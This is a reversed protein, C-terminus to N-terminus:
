AAALKVKAGLWTAVGHQNAEEAFPSKRKKTLLAPPIAWDRVRNLLRRQKGRPAEPGEGQKNAIEELYNQSHRRKLSRQGAWMPRQQSVM